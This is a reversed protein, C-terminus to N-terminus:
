PASTFRTSKIRTQRQHSSRVKTLTQTLSTPWGTRRRRRSTTETDYRCPQHSQRLCWYLWWWWWWRWALARSRPVHRRSHTQCCSACVRKRWWARWWRSMMSWDCCECRSWLLGVSSETTNERYGLMVSLFIVVTYVCCPTSSAFRLKPTGNGDTAANRCVSERRECSHRQWLATYNPVSWLATVSQPQSPSRRGSPFHHCAVAPNVTESVASQGPGRYGYARM